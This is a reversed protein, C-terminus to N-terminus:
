SEDDPSDARVGDDTPPDVPDDPVPPDFVPPEDSPPDLASPDDAPPLEDPPALEAGPPTEDPAPDALLPDPADEYPPDAPTPPDSDPSGNDDPAPEPDAPPALIADAPSPEAVVPNKSEGEPAPAAVAEVPQALADAGDAVFSAVVFDIALGSTAAPEAIAQAAYVAEGPASIGGEPEVPPTAIRFPSIGGSLGEGPVRAGLDRVNSGSGGVSAGIWIALVLAACVAVVRLLRGPNSM